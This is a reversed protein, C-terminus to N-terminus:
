RRGEKRLCLIPNWNWEYFLCVPFNTRSLLWRWSLVKVEEVIEDVELNRENFINDNRAKWLVWLTAFWILRRGKRVKKNRDWEGWCEWHLFLNPPILFVGDIWLMLKLWVRSALDCHLLLHLTSEESRECWGCGMAEDTTIINRLELNVKTPIRNLLAKWAFAVVKSPASCDWLGKFVRKEDERWRDERLVLDELRLYASKVSFIGNDELSWRWLDEDETWVVGELDEKLSVLLEEEWMFLHRRWNFNWVPGVEVNDGMDRVLAEKQNSISYLRPYKLRFCKDGRWRDSWFSTTWGNGVKRKIESNFWNPGGYDGLNVVDKWWLSSTTPCTYNSGELINVVCEGYKKVLVAKWLAERGDILRWRWKALLSINMVRIDKVGAGGNEKQQCVTQWKIWSIKKGGGVGGWLFERQIRVIRKGVGVPM